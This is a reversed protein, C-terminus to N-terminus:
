RGRFSPTRKESFATMAERADETSACLAQLEAEITLTETLSLSMSMRTVRKTLALAIPAREALQGAWRLATERLTGSDVVRNAVGLELCRQAPLKQGEALVEFTRGYGIRRTLFWASGGDPILGMGVFTSMLYANDAMVLLDCALALSMGIGAAAGNVAAIVPKDMRAIVELLPQYDQMLIRAVRRISVDTNAAASKLDAGSCFAKGAGTLVVAGVDPSRALEQFTALLSQRMGTDIANLTQPRSLEVTAVRGELSTIIETSM